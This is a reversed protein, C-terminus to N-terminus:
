VVRKRTPKLLYFNNSIVSFQNLQQEIPSINIKPKYYLTDNIKYKDEEIKLWDSNFRWIIPYNLIEPLLKKKKGKIILKEKLASYQMLLQKANFTPTLYKFKEINFYRIKWFNKQKKNYNNIDLEELYELYNKYYFNYKQHFFNMTSEKKNNIYDNYYINYKNKLKKKKKIFIEQNNSFILFNKKYLKIQKKIKIKNLIFFYTYHKTRRINKDTHKLDNKLISLTPVTIKPFFIPKKSFKFFKKQKIRFYSFYNYKKTKKTIKKIIQKQHNKRQLLASNQKFIFNNFKQFKFTAKKVTQHKLNVNKYKNITLLKNLYNKFILQTKNNLIYIPFPFTINKGETPLTLALNPFNKHKLEPWLKTLTPYILFFNNPKNISYKLESKYDNNNFYKHLIKKFVIHHNSIEGYELTKKKLLKTNFKLDQFIKWLLLLHYHNNWYLYTRQPTFTKNLFFFFSWQKLKFLFHKKKFFVVKYEKKYKVAKELEAFIPLKKKHQPSIQGWRLDLFNKNQPKKITFLMTNSVFESLETPLANSQFDLPRHNLVVESYIIKIIVPYNLLCFLPIM